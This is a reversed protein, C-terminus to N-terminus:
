FVGDLQDDCVAVGAAGRAVHPLQAVGVRSVCRPSVVFVCECMCGRACISCSYVGALIAGTENGTFLKWSGDAAREAMAMRDADPDNAIIFDAGHAEATKISLALAGKGEEPNPFKVTPFEPDPAMQEAVGIFAHLGFRKFAIKAWHAGVGHM